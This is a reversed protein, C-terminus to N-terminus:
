LDDQSLIRRFSAPGAPSRSSPSPPQAAIGSALRQAVDVAGEKDTYFRHLMSHSYMEGPRLVVSPFAGPQESRNVADPFLQTELCLGGHKAYRAGGKGPEGDLFGGSYLQVGPADTLVEMVRGSVPSYLWAALSLRQPPAAAARMANPGNLVLNHDYGRGGPIAGARAGLSTATRFDFPTGAVPALAGTPILSEDVPTYRDAWLLLKHDMVSGAAHGDLNWYAHQALNVITPRGRCFACMETVLAARGGQRTLRYIVTVALEGPYGEEGDASTYEMRVGPGDKEPLRTASWWKRHFGAPGGHLSNPGNNVPVQFPKGDIKFVGKAIRNACRGVISGFYTSGSDYEAM